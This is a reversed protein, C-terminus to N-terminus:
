SRDILGLEHLARVITASNEVLYAKLGLARAAVVNPEFDDFFVADGAAVGCEQLVHAFGSAEPKRIGLESSIFIHDFYALVEKFREPWVLCHVENSNTFAVVKIKGKLAQLSLAVDEFVAGYIANWGSLFQDYSLDLGMKQCLNTHFEVAPLTGREFAEFDADFCFAKGIEEAPKGSLRSWEEFAPGFSAEFVVGGLDFIALKPTHDTHM